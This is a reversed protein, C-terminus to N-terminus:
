LDLLLKIKEKIQKLKEGEIVGIRRQMRNSHMMKIQYILANIKETHFEFEFFWSGTKLKTSLPIGIFSDGSLKKLVLVPRRFEDGKGCSESKINLGVGCWWIDGEKFLYKEQKNEIQIKNKNWEDFNKIM